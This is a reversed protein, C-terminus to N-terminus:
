QSPHLEIPNPFADADEAHKLVFEQLQQTSATLVIAGDIEEHAIEVKKQEIMEKLWGNDLLALRLVEGELWVRWFTHAPLIHLNYLTNRTNGYEDSEEPILDLFTFKGLRGLQAAFEASDGKVEKHLSGHEQEYYVLSYAKDGSRRFTWTNERDKEAWTGVLGPEFVLDKKDFLPHLSRVCSMFLIAIVFAILNKTINM